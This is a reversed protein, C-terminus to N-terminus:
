FLLLNFKRNNSRLGFGNTFLNKPFFNNEHMQSNYISRELGRQRKKRSKSGFPRWKSKKKGHIGFLGSLWAQDKGCELIHKHFEPFSTSIKLCKTCMKEPPRSNIIQQRTKVNYDDIFSKNIKPIATNSHSSLFNLHELFDQQDGSFDYHYCLVNTHDTSKHKEM